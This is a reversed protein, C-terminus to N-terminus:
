RGLTLLYMLRSRLEHLLLVTCMGPMLILPCGGTGVRVPEARAEGNGTADAMGEEEVDVMQLDEGGVELSNVCGVLRGSRTYDSRSMTLCRLVEWEEDETFLGDSDVFTSEEDVIAKKRKTDWGAFLWDLSKCIFSPLPVMFGPELNLLREEVSEIRTAGTLTHVQIVVPNFFGQPDQRVFQVTKFTDEGPIAVGELGFNFLYFWQLTTLEESPSRQAWSSFGARFMHAWSYPALAFDFVHFVDREDSSSGTNSGSNDPSMIRNNRIVRDLIIWLFDVFYRMLFANLCTCTQYLFKLM